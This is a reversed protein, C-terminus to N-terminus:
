WEPHIDAGSAITGSRQVGYWSTEPRVERMRHYSSAYVFPSILHVPEHKVERRYLMYDTTYVVALGIIVSAVTLATEVSRM